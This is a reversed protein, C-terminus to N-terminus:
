VGQRERMAFVYGPESECRSAIKEERDVFISVCDQAVHGPSYGNIM